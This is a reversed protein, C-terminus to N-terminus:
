VTIPQPKMVRIRCYAEDLEEPKRRVGHLPKHYDTFNRDDVKYFIRDPHQMSIWLRDWANSVYLPVHNLYMKPHVLISNFFTVDSWVAIPPPVYGNQNLSTAVAEAVMKASLKANVDSNYPPNPNDATPIFEVANTKGQTRKKMRTSVAEAENKFPKVGPVKFDSDVELLHIVRAGFRGDSMTSILKDVNARSFLEPYMSKPYPRPLRLLQRAEPKKWRMLSREGDLLRDVRSVGGTVEDAYAKFKEGFPTEYIDELKPDLLKEKVDHSLFADIEGCTPLGFCPGILRLVFAAIRNPMILAKPTQCVVLAHVLRARLDEMSSVNTRPVNDYGYVFSCLFDRSHESMAPNMCGGPPAYAYAKMEPYRPKVLVSLLSTLGAGLSHGVIVFPYDPFRRRAEEVWQEAIMREAIKRAVRTMGAHGIFREGEPLTKDEERLPEGMGLLDVLKDNGSATGRIILVLAQTQHDVVLM